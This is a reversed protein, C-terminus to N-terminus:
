TRIGEPIEEEQRQYKSIKNALFQVQQRTLDDLSEIDIENFFALKFPDINQKDCMSKLSSIMTSSAKANSDSLEELNKDYVEEASVVKTLCLARKLARGEARTEATAVPYIAFSKNTNIPSVDASGSYSKVKYDSVDFTLIVSVTARQGNSNDPTQEIRSSISFPGLIKNAIRRLGDVKPNGGEKEYPELKSLVWDTWEPDYMHPRSEEADEADEIDEIQDEETAKIGAVSMATDYLEQLQDKKFTNPDVGAALANMKNLEEILQTKTM